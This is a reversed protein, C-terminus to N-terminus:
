TQEPSITIVVRRNLRRGAETDNLALPASAGFGITRIRSPHIGQEVLALKVNVARLESLNQNLAASGTNDTHGDIQIRTDSYQSLVRGVRRIEQAAGPKLQASGPDFLMDSRFTVALIDANRQVNADEIAALQERLAAEQADAQKGYRNGIVGGAM